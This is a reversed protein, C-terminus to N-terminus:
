ETPIIDISDKLTCNFEEELAAKVCVIIDAGIKGDEVDYGLGHPKLCKFWNHVPRWANRSSILCCHITQCCHATVRVWIAAGEHRVVIDELQGLRDLAAKAMQGQLKILREQSPELRGFTQMVMAMLAKGRKM